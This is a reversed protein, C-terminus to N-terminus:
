IRPMGAKKGLLTGQPQRKENIGRLLVISMYAKVKRIGQLSFL